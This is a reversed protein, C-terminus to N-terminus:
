PAAARLDGAQHVAVQGDHAPDRGQEHPADRDGGEGVRRRQDLQEGLRDHLLEVEPELGLVHEVDGADQGLGALAGDDHGARVGREDGAPHEDHLSEVPVGPAVGVVIRAAPMSVSATSRAASM